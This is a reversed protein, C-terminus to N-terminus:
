QESTGAAPVSPATGRQALVIVGLGWLVAGLAWPTGLASAAEPAVLSVSGVATASAGTVAVAMRRGQGPLAGGAVLLVFATATLAMVFWHAQHHPDAAPPWTHRQMLGQQVGYWVWPSGAAAVALLRLDPARDRWARWPAAVLATLLPPVALVVFAPDLWGAQGGHNDPNGVVVAMAIWALAAVGTHTAFGAAQPRAVLGVAGTVGILLAAAAGVLHVAEGPHEAGIRAEVSGPPELVQPAGLRDGADGLVFVVLFNLSVLALGALARVAVRRGTGFPREYATTPTQTM